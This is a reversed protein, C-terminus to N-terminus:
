HRCLWMYSCWETTDPALLCYSFAHTVELIFIYILNSDCYKRKQSSQQHKYSFPEQNWWQSFNHDSNHFWFYIHCIKLSAIHFYFYSYFFGSCEICWLSLRPYWPSRTGLTHKSKDHGGHLWNYQWPFHAHPHPCWMSATTYRESQEGRKPDKLLASSM